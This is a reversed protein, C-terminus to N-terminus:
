SSSKCCKKKQVSEAGEFSMRLSKKNKSKTGKKLLKNALQFFVEAVQDGTKASTEKYIEIGEARM